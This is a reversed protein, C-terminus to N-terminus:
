WPLQWVAYNWPSNPYTSGTPTLQSAVIKRSYVVIVVDPPSSEHPPSKKSDAILSKRWSYQTNTGVGDISVAPAVSSVLSNAENPNHKRLLAYIYSLHSAQRQFTLAAPVKFAIIICATVFLVIACSGITFQTQSSIPCRRM